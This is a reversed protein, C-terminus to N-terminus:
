PSQGFARNELKKRDSIELGRNSFTILRDTKLRSLIRSVTERSAGILNAFNSHTPMEVVRYRGPAEPDPEAMSIIEICVRQEAGLSLINILRRDLERINSSLKRLVSIAFDSNNEVFGMFTEERIKILECYSIACVWASRPLGDIAAMEGFMEGKAASAYTVARGSSSYNLVHACGHIMFYVSKDPEGRKLITDGPDFSCADGQERFVAMEQESLCSLLPLKSLDFDDIKVELKVM